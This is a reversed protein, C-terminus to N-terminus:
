LHDVKSFKIGWSMEFGKILCDSLKKYDVSKNLITQLEITNSSLIKKMATKTFSDANLYDPLKKHYTGVLISGHQLISNDFKRQASGIIKKNEFKVESKATSAFCLVGEPQNLLTPFHPQSLELEIYNKLQADYIILGNILANSIDRYIEKPSTGKYTPMIVAYTIEESHLIARGGTPRKVVDIGDNRAKEIDIDDYHQNHGLSISNPDWRYLRFVSEDPKISKALKSDIDMNEEGTAFGSEILHWKM